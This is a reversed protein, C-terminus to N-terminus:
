KQERLKESIRKRLQLVRKIIVLCIATEVVGFVSWALFQNYPLLIVLIFGSLMASITVMAAFPLENQKESM